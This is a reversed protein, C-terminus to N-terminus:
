RAGRATPITVLLRETVEELDVRVLRGIRYGTISGDAIRRRLTKTSVNLRAAAANLPVLNIDTRPTVGNPAM